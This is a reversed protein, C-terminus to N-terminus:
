MAQQMVSGQRATGFFSHLFVMCMAAQSPHTTCCPTGPPLPAAARLRYGELLLLLYSSCGGPLLYPRSPCQLLTGSAWAPRM